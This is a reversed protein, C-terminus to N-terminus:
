PKSASCVDSVDRTFAAIYQKWPGVDDSAQVSSAPSLMCKHAQLTVEISGVCLRCCPCSRRLLQTTVREQLRRRARNTQRKHQCPVKLSSPSTMSHSQDTAGAINCPQYKMIYITGSRYALAQLLLKWQPRIGGTGVARPSWEAVLLTPGTWAHLIISLHYKSHVAAASLCTISPAHTQCLLM